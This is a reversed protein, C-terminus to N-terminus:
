VNNFTIYGITCYLAITFLLGICSGLGEVGEINMVPVPASFLDHRDIFSDTKKGKFKRNCNTMQYDTPDQRSLDFKLRILLKGLKLTTIKFSNDQTNKWNKLTWSAYVTGEEIPGPVTEM